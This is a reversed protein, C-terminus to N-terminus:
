LPSTPAIPAAPDWALGEGNGVIYLQANASFALAAVAALAYLKKM